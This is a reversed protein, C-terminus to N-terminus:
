ASLHAPSLGEPVALADPREDLVSPPSTVFPDLRDAQGKAWELWLAADRGDPAAWEGRALRGEAEAIFARLALSARWANADGVLRDVRAQEERQRALLEQRARERAEEAERRAREAEERRREEEEERQRTRRNQGAKLVWRVLARNIKEEIRRGGV